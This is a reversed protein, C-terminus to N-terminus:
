VMNKRLIYPLTEYTEKDLNPNDFKLLILIIIINKGKKQIFIM